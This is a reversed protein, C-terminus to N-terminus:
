SKFTLGRTMMADPKAAPLRLMVSIGPSQSPEQQPQSQAPGPPVFSIPVPSFTLIFLAITAWAMIRRNGALPTHADVTSPHGLGLFFVLGFWILWGFWFDYSLAYPVVVM